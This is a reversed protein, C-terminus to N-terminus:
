NLDIDEFVDAWKEAEHHGIYPNNRLQIVHFFEHKATSRPTIDKNFGHNGCTSCTFVIDAPDGCCAYGQSADLRDVAFFMVTPFSPHVVGVNPGPTNMWSGIVNPDLRDRRFTPALRDNISKRTMDVFVIEANAHFM